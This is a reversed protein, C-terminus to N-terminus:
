LVEAMGTWAVFGKVIRYVTWVVWGALVLYGVYVIALATGLIVWILGWWFTRQLYSYHSNVVKDNASNSYCVHAMIVGVISTIPIFFGLFYLGYIVAPMNTKSAKDVISSPYFEVKGSKDIVNENM